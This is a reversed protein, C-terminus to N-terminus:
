FFLNVVCGDWVKDFDNLYDGEYFDDCDMELLDQVASGAGSDSYDCALDDAISALDDLGSGVERRCDAMGFYSAQFAGRSCQQYRQCFADAAVSSFRNEPIDSPVCAMVGLLVVGRGLWGTPSDSM